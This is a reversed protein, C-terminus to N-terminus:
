NRGLPAGRVSFYKRKAHDRAVCCCFLPAFCTQRQNRVRTSLRSGLFWNVLVGGCDSLSTVYHVHAYLCKGLSRNRLAHRPALTANHENSRRRSHFRFTHSIRNSEYTHLRRICAHMHVCLICQMNCTNTFVFYYRASIFHPTHATKQCPRNSHNQM